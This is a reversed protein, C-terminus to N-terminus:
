DSDHSFYAELMILNREGAQRVIKLLNDMTSVEELQETVFWRLFDQGIHDKKAIALDMMANIRRTVEWEWDLSIKVAEEVSKFGTKPASVAPIALEGGAAAIYKCFKMAHEKEEEGQKYFRGALKKLGLSEFYAAINVYQHFANFEHGIQENIAANLEKSILTDM